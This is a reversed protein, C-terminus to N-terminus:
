AFDREAGNVVEQRAGAKLADLPTLGDLAGHPQRLWLWASRADPALRLVDAIGELPRADVFQELPYALKRAGRLLGVVMGKKHWHSLTSRPIGLNDEVEGAGAVPGAWSELPRATAYRDLRARGEDLSIVEGLGTGRSREIRGTSRVSVRTQPRDGHVVEILMRRVEDKERALESQEDKPLEAIVGSVFSILEAMTKLDSARATPNTSRLAARM